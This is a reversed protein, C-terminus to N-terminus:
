PDAGDCSPDIWYKEKCKVTNVKAANVDVQDIVIVEDMPCKSEEETQLGHHFRNRQVDGATDHEHLKKM